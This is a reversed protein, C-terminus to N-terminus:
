PLDELGPLLRVVIEGGPVDVSVLADPSMPVLRERAGEEEGRVVLIPAAGTSMVNTVRGLARGDDTRVALGELQFLYVEGEGAPPIQSAAVELVAGHLVLADERDDVGEFTVLWHHLFPRVARVVLTRPPEGKVRAEVRELARFAPEDLRVGAVVVEGKLGHAKAITGIEVRSV